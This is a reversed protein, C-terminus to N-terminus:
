LAFWYCDKCNSKLLYVWYHPSIWFLYAVRKRRSSRYINLDAYCFMNFCTDSATGVFCISCIYEIIHPTDFNIHLVSEDVQATYTLTPTAFYKLRSDRVNRVYWTWCKFMLEGSWCLSLLRALKLCIHWMSEDVQDTYTLTQTVFCILVRIM